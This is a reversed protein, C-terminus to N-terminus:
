LKVRSKGEDTLEKKVRDLEETMWRRLKAIGLELAASNNSGSAPVGQFQGCRSSLSKVGGAPPAARLTPAGSSGAVGVLSAASSREGGAGPSVPSDNASTTRRGTPRLAIPAPQACAFPTLFKQFIPKIPKPPPAATKEIVSAAPEPKKRPSTVM